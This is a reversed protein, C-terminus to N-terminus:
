APELKNTDVYRFAPFSEGFAENVTQSVVAMREIIAMIREGQPTQIFRAFQFNEELSHFQPGAEILLQMRAVDELCTAEM